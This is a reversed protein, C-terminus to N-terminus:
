MQKLPEVKIEVNCFFRSRMKRGFIVGTKEECDKVLIELKRQFEDMQQKM